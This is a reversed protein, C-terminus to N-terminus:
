TFRGKAERIAWRYGCGLTCFVGDDGYGPKDFLPENRYPGYPDDASVPVRRGYHRLPRRCELCAKDTTLSPSDPAPGYRSM